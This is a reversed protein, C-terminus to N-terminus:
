NIEDAPCDITQHRRSKTQTTDLMDHLKRTGAGDRYMHSRFNFPPPLSRSVCQDPLVFLNTSGTPLHSKERPLSAAIKTVNHLQPPLSPRSCSSSRIHKKVYSGLMIYIPRFVLASFFFMLLNLYISSSVIAGEKSGACFAFLHVRGAVGGNSEQRNHASIPTSVNSRRPIGKGSSACTSILTAPTIERHSPFAFSLCVRLDPYMLMSRRSYFKTEM